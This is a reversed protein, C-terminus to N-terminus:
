LAGTQGTCIRVECLVLRCWTAAHLHPILPISPVPSARGSLTPSPRSGHSMLSHPNAHLSFFNWTPSTGSAPYAPLTRRCPLEAGLDAARDGNRSLGMMSEGDIM